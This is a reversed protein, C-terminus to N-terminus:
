RALTQLLDKPAPATSDSRQLAQMMQAQAPDMQSLTQLLQTGQVCVHVIEQSQQMEQLEQPTANLFLDFNRNIRDAVNQAKADHASAGLALFLAVLAINGPKALKNLLVNMRRLLAPSEKLNIKAINFAQASVVERGPIQASLSLDDIMSLFIRRQNQPMATLWPEQALRTRLVMRDAYPVSRDFLGMYKLIDEGTKELALQKASITPKQFPNVWFRQSAARSFGMYKADGMYRAGEQGLFDAIEQAQAKQLAHRRAQQVLATVASGLAVGGLGFLWKSNQKIWPAKEVAQRAQQQYQALDVDQTDTQPPLAFAMNQGLLVLSVTLALLKKHTQM